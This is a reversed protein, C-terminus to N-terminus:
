FYSSSVPQIRRHEVSVPSGLISLELPHFGYFDFARVWYLDLKVGSDDLVRNAPEIDDREFWQVL